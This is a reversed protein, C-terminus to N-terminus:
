VMYVWAKLLACAEFNTIICYDCLFPGHPLHNTAKPIGTCQLLLNIEGLSFDLAWLTM